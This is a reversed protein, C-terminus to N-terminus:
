CFASAATVLDFARTLFEVSDGLTWGSRGVGNLPRLRIVDAGAGVLDYYVELQSREEIEALLAVAESIRVAYADSQERLPILIENVQEGWTSSWVMMRDRWVDEQVWDHAQLYARLRDPSVRRLAAADRIQVDM